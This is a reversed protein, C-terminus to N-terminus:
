IELSAAKTLRDMIAAFAETKHVHKLKFILCSAGSEALRRLESYLVRAAQDAEDSLILEVYNEVKEPRIMKVGEVENPLLQLHSNIQKLLEDKSFDSKVIILPVSPMYHHKMHGPSEHKSASDQFHVNLNMYRLEHLIQTKRIAGERLISLTPMESPSSSPRILLVTSELGVSCPGGDVVSVKGQFETIVHLAETPSTRGFKNASPAALPQGVDEILRLAMEHDPMRIGVSPLGSTIVDSVLDSKPLVLTLPGPWFAEALAQAVNSWNTTLTKAQEISCVHVILPDFFPREKTSFIKAIGEPSSIAAALGYVTETPMAGVDGSKIKEALESVKVLAM